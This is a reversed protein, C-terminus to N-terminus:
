PESVSRSNNDLLYRWRRYMADANDHILEPEQFLESSHWTRMLEWPQYSFGGPQAAFLSQENRLQM